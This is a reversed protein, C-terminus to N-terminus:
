PLRRKLEDYFNLLFTAHSAARTFSEDGEPVFAVIRGDPAVNFTPWRPAAGIRTESWVRPKSSAFDRGKAEVDAVMIRNDPAMFYIQRGSPSWRPFVGGAGSIQSRGGAEPFPRVYVEHRSSENSNYAIWRGDPSFAPALDTGPTRLFLEPAGAKPRNPDSWDLPLTYLDEATAGGGSHYALRSGDRLVSSPMMEANGELLKVPEGAADSRVTWLAFKGGALSAYILRKSDPTWVPFANGPATTVRTMIERRFDWVHIDAAGSQGMSFAMSRGDPSVAPTSYRGALPLIPQSRAGPDLWVMPASLLSPRGAMYVFTGTSSFSFRGIGVAEVSGLDDVISLPEGSVALSSPDFKVAFLSSSRAFLLHGSPAYRGYFGGRHVTKVAGTAVDVAAIDAQDFNGTSTHATFLVHRSGPLFQPFRHTAHGLAAPTTIERSPGGAAPALRLGGTNSAFVINGDASWAVGWPQGQAECVVMPSGGNVSVKKLRGDAVFAIWQGDPSFTASAASETGPLISPNPQDLARMALSDKGEGPRVYYLLRAGDPSITAMNRLTPLADAGLDVSLRVLPRSVPRTARWAYVSVALALLACVATAVIWRAGGPKAPSAQPQQEPEDLLIRAASIHGLRQRVDRTLCLRLLRRFRPPVADLDPDRTLVAALTDSVTPGEFLLRGTLLEYLVAGFAWIDARRDVEQGRAQEPSMYAATGMIVGALTARMTLTPSNAPNAATSDSSLAKALGFDLVKLRGEPTIKLNAPKLDRHIIGKDHAYEQADILQHVIPLAEAETMPGHPEAGEVLELILAREEVGYIAAINPHNLSALVQAERTFRALRDPDAAFADPLIKVAVDRNLKTDTARYVAGMGGEGLKSTLRYHAITPQPTV